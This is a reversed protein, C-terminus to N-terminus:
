ALAPAKESSGNLSALLGLRERWHWRWILGGAVVVLGVALGIWVGVGELPTRFGLWLSTSIGILWYGSLAVIM